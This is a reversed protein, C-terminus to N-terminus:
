EDSDGRKTFFLATNDDKLQDPDYGADYLVRRLVYYRGHWNDWTSDKIYDIRPWTGKGQAIMAEIERLRTVVAELLANTDEKRLREIEDAGERMLRVTEAINPAVVDDSYWADADTRLREAITDSM